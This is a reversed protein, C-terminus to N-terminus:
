VMCCCLACLVCMSIACATRQKDVNIKKKIGGQLSLALQTIADAFKKLQPDDSIISQKGVEAKQFACFAQLADRMKRSWSHSPDLLSMNFIDNHIGSIYMSALVAPDMFDAEKTFDHSEMEIMHFLRTLNRVHDGRTTPGQNKEAILHKEFPASALSFGGLKIPWNPVREGSKSPSPPKAEIYIKKIAITPLSALPGSAVGAAAAKTTGKVFVQLEIPMVPTDDNGVRVWLLKWRSGDAKVVTSGETKAYYKCTNAATGKSKDKSETTDNNDEDGCENESDKDENNPEDDTDKNEKELELAAATKSKMTKADAGCSNASEKSKQMGPATANSSSGKSAATEKKKNFYRNKEQAALEKNAAKHLYSGKIDAIKM